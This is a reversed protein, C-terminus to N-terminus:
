GRAYPPAHLGDAAFRLLPQSLPLVGSPAAQCAGQSAAQLKCATLRGRAACGGAGARGPRQVAALGAVARGLLMAPGCRQRVTDVFRTMLVPKGLQNCRSIIRKQLMAMMQLM